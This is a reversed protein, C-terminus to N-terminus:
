VMLKGFFGSFPPIGAMALLTILLLIINFQGSKKLSRLENLYILEKNYIQM